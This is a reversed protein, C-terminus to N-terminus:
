RTADVLRAGSTQRAHEEIPRGYAASREAANFIEAHWGHAALWETALEPATSRWLAVYDGPRGAGDPHAARWAQLREPSALTLGMRSEPVSLEGARAVLSDSAEPSLYALLGEALWTVRAHADFGAELLAQPWNESLDVPVAIRECHTRWGDADVVKQKFELVQALDLEWLRLKAPWDLRFARADLGAGLIVVQRCGSGCADLVLDDLFRTRVTIWAVLSPRRGPAVAGDRRRDNLGAARVFSAALLDTFLRDSRDAEAARVQAVGVATEGVPPLVPGQATM